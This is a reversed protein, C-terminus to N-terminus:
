EATQTAAEMEAMMGAFANPTERTQESAVVLGKGKFVIIYYLTVRLTDQRTTFKPGTLENIKEALRPARNAALEDFVIRAQGKLAAAYKQQSESLESKLSYLRATM